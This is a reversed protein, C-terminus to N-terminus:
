HQLNINRFINNKKLIPTKPGGYKYIYGHGQSHQALKASENNAHRGWCIECQVSDKLQSKRPGRGRKSSRGGAAPHADTNAAEEAPAEAGRGGTAAPDPAPDAQAADGASMGIEETDAEESSSLGGVRQM